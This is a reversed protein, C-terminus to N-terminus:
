DLISRIACILQNMTAPKQLFGDADDVILHKEKDNERYGSAILVKVDTDIEKLAELVDTGSMGPMIYDLIVLDIIHKMKKYQEVGLPGNEATIVTYGRDVLFDSWMTLVTPEDDILLITENEELNQPDTEKSTESFKGTTSPFYLKFVTGTEEESYVTIFGNHTKVIGYLTALGMGTGGSSKKTTFFPEFIHEKVHPPIGTGTDSISLVVFEGAHADLHTKVFAEDLYRNTTEILLEGGDPMADRANICLNLLCQELQGEDGKIPLINTDLSTKLDIAGKFTSSLLPIVNQVVNNLSVRQFLTEGGGRSFNLLQRTMEAARTTGDFITKIPKYDPNESSTKAMLMESYGMIGVLINNFNHAIGGALNGIAEMKQAYILQRELNKKETIDKITGQIGIIAGYENYRGTATILCEAITGDTKQLEIERNKVLGTERIDRFLTDREEADRFFVGTDAGIVVERPLGFIEEIAPNIDLIRGDLQSVFLIDASTEFISRLQEESDRLADLTKKRETVDSLFMLVTPRDDWSISVGTAEVWRTENQADILRYQGPTLMDIGNQIKLYLEMIRDRDKKHFFHVFPKKQLNKLSSGTMKLIVPNAFRIFEDQIVAIGEKAHEVVTRYKGESRRLANEYLKRQTIDISIGGLLPDDDHRDILFSRTEFFRREGNIDTLQEEKLLSGREFTETDNWMTRGADVPDLYETAIKGIWDDANFTERMLKNAYLLRSEIDKIFVVAPVQDAFRSFIEWTVKYQEEAEMQRTADRTFSMVAPKDDWLIMIANSELWRYEGSETQFRFRSVYSVDDGTLKRNYESSAVERDDAHIFDIFPRRSLEEASYGTITQTAPNAFQIHGDQIVAISENTNELLKGYIAEIKTHDLEAQIPPTVANFYCLVAPHEKWSDVAVHADMYMINKDKTVIRIKFNSPIDEGALRRTYRDTIEDVDDPHIFTTFPATSIKKDTHGIWDKLTQNHFVITDEQIVAIGVPSREVLTRHIDEHDTDPGSKAGDRNKEPLTDEERLKNITETNDAM